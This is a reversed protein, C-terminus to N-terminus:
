YINEPEFWKLPTMELIDKWPFMPGPDQKRRVQVNEDDTARIMTLDLVSHGSILSLSPLQESLSKLLVLLSGIQVPPYPQKMIQNRSDFWDPYRGVNVLEIGISNKNFNKVHHAVRGLPVWQELRGNQEIYFHGSNGTRTKPYHVREGYERAKVLDPLETCHIVVLDIDSLPRTELFEVYPLANVTVEPQNLL